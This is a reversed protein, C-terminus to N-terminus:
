TVEAKDAKSGKALSATVRKNFTKAPRKIVKTRVKKQQPYPQLIHNRNM